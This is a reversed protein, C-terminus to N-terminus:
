KLKTQALLTVVEYKAVCGRWVLCKFLLANIEMFAAALREVIWSVWGPGAM